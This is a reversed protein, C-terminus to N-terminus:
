KDLPRSSPTPTSTLDIDTSVKSIISHYTRIIDICEPKKEPPTILCELYDHYIKEFRIKTSLSEDM